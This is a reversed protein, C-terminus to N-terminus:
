SRSNTKKPRQDIFSMRRNAYDFVLTFNTLMEACFIGACYSSMGMKQASKNPVLAVVDSFTHGAIEFNGVNGYDAQSVVMRRGRFVTPTDVEPDDFGEVLNSPFMLSAGAAGSDVMLIVEKGNVKALVHPVNDFLFMRQWRLKKTRPMTKYETPDYVSLTRHKPSMEIICSYFLDFGCLGDVDKLLKDINVEMFMPDMIKLPGLQFSKGRFFQTKMVGGGSISTAYVEGFGHMGLQMAKKKNIALCGTGTDVIFYGAEKGDVIPRVMYHGSKAYRMQVSAPRSSDIQSRPYHQHHRPVFMSLPYAYVSRDSALIESSDVLVKVIKFNEQGVSSSARSSFIPLRCQRDPLVYQWNSFKWRDRFCFKQFSMRMPLCTSRDVVVYAVVEKSKMKMSFLLEKDPSYLVSTSGSPEQQIDLRKQAEDTVWFGTRVWACLVCVEGEDLEMRSVRGAADAYWILKGDHGWEHTFEENKFQEYFCGDMSWKMTWESEIGWTVVKGAVVINENLFYDELGMATNILQLNEVLDTNETWDVGSGQPQRWVQGRTSAGSGSSASVETKRDPAYSKDHCRHVHVLTHPAAGSERSLNCIFPNLSSAVSIGLLEMRKPRVPLTRPEPLSSFSPAAM